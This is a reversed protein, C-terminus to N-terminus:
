KLKKQLYKGVFEGVTGFVGAIRTGTDFDNESGLIKVYHMNRVNEYLMSALIKDHNSIEILKVEVTLHSEKSGITGTAFGPEIMIVKVVLSYKASTAGTDAKMNLKSLKENLFKRFQVHYKRTKDTQWAAAWRQGDGPVKKNADAMKKKIYAAEPMMGVKVNTYDFLLGVEKQGKLQSFDGTIQKPKQAFAINGIFMIFVVTLFWTKTKM